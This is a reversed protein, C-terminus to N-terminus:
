GQHDDRAIFIDKVLLGLVRQRDETAGVTVHCRAVRGDREDALKLCADPDAALASSRSKLAYSCTLSKGRLPAPQRDASPRVHV